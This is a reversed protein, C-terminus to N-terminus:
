SLELPSKMHLFVIILYTAQMIVTIIWSAPYSVFLFDITRNMPFFVYIWLIRVGVTGIISLIMPVTSHGLGRLCGPLCNMFACLFYSLTTYSLVKMGASIVDPDPNYIGLIVPGGFYFLSGLLMSVIFDLILCDKLIKKIRSINMLAYNQSTFSMCAQAIADISTFIFGFLNNAATYGAMAVSGFSNVSSQLLVNSFNIVVSQIAAPIGIAFIKKLIKTNIHLKRFDLQYNGETRSLCRLILLCSIMQSFITALAVGAVDLHFVIVLILNLAANIAGAFILYYLPRRTDGAARLIAAGYNYVIFFPMGCFYIRMYLISQDIVNSPTDMLRLSLPTLLIGVFLTIFGMIAAITISTHVTESVNDDENCAIYRATIVNAGLSIGIFLNAFMNILATTAGVAALADSGAFRGVVVLDVANFLLQLIGSFMLPLFFQILKPMISGHTMDIEYSKKRALSASAM